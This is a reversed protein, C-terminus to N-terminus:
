IPLLVGLAHPSDDLALSELKAVRGRAAPSRAEGGKRDSQSGPLPFTQSHKLEFALVSLGGRYQRRAKKSILGPLKRSEWVTVWATGDAGFPKVETNPIPVPTAGEICGGPFEESKLLGLIGYGPPITYGATGLM